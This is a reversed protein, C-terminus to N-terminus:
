TRGGAPRTPRGGPCMCPSTWRACSCSTCPAWCWRPPWSRRARSGAARGAGRHGHRPAARRQGGPRPHRDDAGAVQGQQRLGVRRREGADARRRHGARASDPRQGRWAAPRGAGAAARDLDGGRRQLRPPARGRDRDERRHHPQGPRGEADAEPGDRASPRHVRVVELRARLHREAAWRAAAPSHTSGTAGPKGSSWRATPRASTAPSGSGTTPYSAAAPAAGGPSTTWASRGHRSPPPRRRPSRRARGASRSASQSCPRPPWPREHECSAVEAFPSAPPGPSPGSRCGGAFARGTSVQVSSRGSVPAHRPCKM